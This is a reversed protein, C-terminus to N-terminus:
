AESAKQKKSASKADDPGTTARELYPHVLLIAIGVVLLSDAVNFTPWYLDPRNWWHWDVFDIVYKRIARDTFNGITGSLIFALSLQLLRQGAGLRRYYYLVAGVAIVTIVMFLKHRMEAPVFSMFGFAANPNEVYRMRWVPTFGPVPYPKKALSELHRIELYAQLKKSLTDAHASEFTTTLRDVALFKSAQDAFYTVGFVVLLVTWKSLGRGNM